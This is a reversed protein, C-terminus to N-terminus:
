AGAGQVVSPRRSIGSGEHTHAAQRRLDGLSALPARRMGRRAHTGGGEPEGLIRLACFTMRPPHSCYEIRDRLDDEVVPVGRIAGEENPCPLPSPHSAGGGRAPFARATRRAWISGFARNSM